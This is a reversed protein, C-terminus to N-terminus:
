DKTSYEKWFKEGDSSRSPMGCQETTLLEGYVMTSKSIDVLRSAIGQRRHKPEVWIQLLELRHVKTLFTTQVLLAGIVQHGKLFAYLTMSGTVNRQDKTDEDEDEDDEDIVDVVDGVGVNTLQQAMRLRLNRTRQVNEKHSLPFQLIRSNNNSGGRRWCCIDENRPRFIVPQTSQRHFSRHAIEDEEKGPAYLMGCTNCKVRSFSKQGFDLFLQQLKPKKKTTSRRCKNAAITRNSNNNSTTTLSSTNRRRKMMFFLIENYKIEFLQYQIKLVM